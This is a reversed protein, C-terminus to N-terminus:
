LQRGLFWHGGVFSGCRAARTAASTSIDYFWKSMHKNNDTTKTEHKTVQPQRPPPTALPIENLFREM